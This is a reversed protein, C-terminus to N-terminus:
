GVADGDKLTFSVDRLATVIHIRGAESEIRGGTGFRVLQNRLSMARSNYIPYQVTVHDFVLAACM